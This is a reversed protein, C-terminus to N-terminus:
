QFPHTDLRADRELIAMDVETIWRNYRERSIKLVGRVTGGRTTSTTEESSDLFSLGGVAGSSPSSSELEELQDNAVEYEYELRAHRALEIGIQISDSYTALRGLKPDLIQISTAMVGVSRANAVISWTGDKASLRSLRKRLESDASSGDLDRDVAQKVNEITGFVLYHSDLLALWRVEMLYRREREFPQVVLVPIDRYSHRRVKVGDAFRLVAQPDFIGQVLLTHPAWDREDVAGSVFIGEHIKRTPDAGTLAKFDDLDLRNWRTILMYYKASREESPARFGAVVPAGAPVMRLLRGDPTLAVASAAVASLCLAVLGSVLPSM